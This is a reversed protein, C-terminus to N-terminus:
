LCLGPSVNQGQDNMVVLALHHNRFEELTRNALASHPRVENHDHRRARALSLRDGADGLVRQEGRIHSRLYGKLASRSSDPRRHHPPDGAPM